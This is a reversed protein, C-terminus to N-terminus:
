GVSELFMKLERALYDPKEIVLMHGCDPVLTLHSNPIKEAIYKVREPLALQDEKGCAIWTPCHIRKIQKSFDFQSTAIVDGLFLSPRVAKLPLMVKQRFAKPTSSSFSLKEFLQLAEGFREGDTLTELFQASLEFRDACATLGLGVVQDPHEAALHMAIAGGMSHGVVFFRFIKLEQIFQDIQRSYSEISQCGCGSSRGHGPLDPTIVRFGPLRRFQAPWSLYNGGAGHLLILPPLHSKNGIYEQFFIHNINPM